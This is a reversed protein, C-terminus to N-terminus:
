RFLYIIEKYKPTNIDAPLHNTGRFKGQGFGIFLVATVEFFIIFVAIAVKKRAAFKNYNKFFLFFLPFMSVPLTIIVMWAQLYVPSLGGAVFLAFAYSITINMIQKENGPLADYENRFKKLFRGRFYYWNAIVAIIVTLISLIQLFYIILRLGGSFDTEKLAHVMDYGSMKFWYFVSKLFPVVEVFGRGIYGSTEKTISLQQTMITHISPIYAILAILLAAALGGAHLKIKKTFLLWFTSILLIMASNHTQFAFVIALIHLLTYKFSKHGHLRMASIFHLASFLFLYAPEWLFGSNYIRVPSLWYIVTFILVGELKFLRKFENALLFYAILNFLIILIMPSRFNHWLMLPLGVAIELFPGINSGSGGTWKGIGTLHGTQAFHEGAKLLTIQDGGAVYRSSLFLHLLFGSLFLIIILIRLIKDKEIVNKNPSLM